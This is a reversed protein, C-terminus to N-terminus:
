ETSPNSYRNELRNKRLNNASQTRNIIKNSMKTSDGSIFDDYEPSPKKEWISNIVSRGM